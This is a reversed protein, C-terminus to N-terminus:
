ILALCFQAFAVTIVEFAWAKPLLYFDLEIDAALALQMGAVEKSQEITKAFDNMQRKIEEAMQNQNLGEAKMKPVLDRILKVKAIYLLADQRIQVEHSITSRSESM